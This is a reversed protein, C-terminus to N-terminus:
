APTKLRAGGIRRVEDLHRKIIPATKGALARLSAQDGHAAYGDMLKLAEVHANLQQRLYVLDFDSASAAKLKRILATHHADLHDPPVISLGSTKLTSTMDEGIRTHDTVIMQALAKVDASQARQEAIQGAQIEYLNAISATKVFGDATMPAPAHHRSAEGAGNAASSAPSAGTLPAPDESKACRSRLCQEPRRDAWNWAESGLLAIEGVTEDQLLDLV